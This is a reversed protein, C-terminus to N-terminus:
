KEVTISVLEHKARTAAVYQLNTEQQIQWLQRAYPSPQYRNPGYWYVRNWERGKSKHITSLTLNPAPQGPEVDAFLTDIKRYLDEKTECGEALVHITEVKDEVSQAQTERRKKNLTAIEVASWEDLKALWRDLSQIRTWRGLLKKLGAGIDRGEVHCPIGRGILNYALEVLPATNRCLVASDRDLEVAGYGKFEREDIVRYIGDEASEAAQIHQVYNQAVTVVEKPCRFSVTLPLDVAEFNRRIIDLSDSDAGTFGYIAQHPDGVAILRGNPALIRAALERRTWNSDQAEDVLVWDYQDFRSRYLLPLYIMDDFDITEGGVANSRRLTDVAYDIAANVDGNGADSYLLEDLGFHAVLEDWEDPDDIPCWIGIGAQKALSVAQAIFTHYVKHIYPAQDILGYTKKGDVKTNRNTKRWASFGFSHFTAANGKLGRASLKASIEDAIKKNYACLAARQSQVRALVELLTTTKGSGAVAILIANGSGNDVWDLVSQQQPSLELTSSM